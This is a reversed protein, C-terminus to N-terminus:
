MHLYKGTTVFKTAKIRWTTVLKTAKNRWHATFRAEILAGCLLSPNVIALSHTFPKGPAPWARHIRIFVPNATCLANGTWLEV